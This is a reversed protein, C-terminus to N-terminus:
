GKEDKLSQLLFDVSFIVVATEAAKEAPGVDEGEAQQGQDEDPGRRRGVGKVQARERPVVNEDGEVFLHGAAM